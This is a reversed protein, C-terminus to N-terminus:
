RAPDAKAGIASAGEYSDSCVGGLVTNAVVDRVRPNLADSSNVIAAALTQKTDNDLATANAGCPQVPELRIWRSTGTCPSSVSADLRLGTVAYVYSNTLVHFTRLTSKDLTVGVERYTLPSCAASPRCSASNLFTKPANHCAALKSAAARSKAAQLASKRSGELTNDFLAVRSDHMFGTGNYIM